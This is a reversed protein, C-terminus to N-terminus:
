LLGLRVWVYLSEDAANLGGEGEVGGLSVEGRQDRPPEYYADWTSKKQQMHSM